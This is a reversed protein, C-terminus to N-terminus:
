QNQQKSFRSLYLIAEIVGGGIARAKDFITYCYSNVGRPDIDGIKLGKTVSMGNQILGHIIGSIAAKVPSQGIYGIIDGQVVTDGIDLMNSITGDCPARIVREASYGLLPVSVGTDAAAQGQYIVKGLDHGELTEVVADVDRGATFGPGLAITIPAMGRSTGNNKKALTADIVIDPKFIDISDAEPDVLVPIHGQQWSLFADDPTNIRVAKVGEVTVEGEVVAQAFAVRRRVVLPAPIELVAVRFGSQYLRHISGTAIDGGGRFVVTGDVIIM